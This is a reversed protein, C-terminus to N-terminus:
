LYKNIMEKILDMIQENSTFEIDEYKWNTNSSYVYKKDNNISYRVGLECVHITLQKNNHIIDMELIGETRNLYVYIDYGDKKLMEEVDDLYLSFVHALGYNGIAKLKNIDNEVSVYSNETEIKMCFPLASLLFVSSTIFFAYSIIGLVLIDLIVAILMTILFVVGFSAGILLRKNRSKKLKNLNYRKIM